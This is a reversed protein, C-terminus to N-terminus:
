GAVIEEATAHQGEKLVVYAEVAEGTTDDPVGAM